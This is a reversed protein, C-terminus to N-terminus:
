DMALLQYDITVGVPTAVMYRFITLLLAYNVAPPMVGLFNKSSFNCEQLSRGPSGSLSTSHWFDFLAIATEKVGVVGVEDTGYM